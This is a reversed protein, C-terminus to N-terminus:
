EIPERYGDKRQIKPQTKPKPPPERGKPALGAEKSAAPAISEKEIILDEKALSEKSPPAKQELAEAVGIPPKIKPLGTTETESPSLKEEQPTDEIVDIETVLPTLKEKVDKVLNKANDKSIKLTQEFLLILNDQSIKNQLLDIASHQLLSQKPEEGRSMAEFAQSATEELKYKKLIESIASKANEQFIIRKEM